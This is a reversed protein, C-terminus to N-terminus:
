RDIQDLVAQIATKYDRATAEYIRNIRPNYRNPLSCVFKFGDPVTEQRQWSVGRASLQAQLEEYSAPTRRPGFGTGAPPVAAPPNPVPNPRSVAEVVPEPNRLV